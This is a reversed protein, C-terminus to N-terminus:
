RLRRTPRLGSRRQGRRRRREFIIMSAGDNEGLRVWHGSVFGPMQSLRPIACAASGVNQGRDSGSRREAVVHDPGTVSSRMPSSSCRRRRSSSITAWRILSVAVQVVVAVADLLQHAFVPLQQRGHLAARLASLFQPRGYIPSATRPQRSEHHGGRMAYSAHHARRVVGHRVCRGLNSPRVEHLLGSPRARSLVGSRRSPPIRGGISSSSSTHSARSSSIVSVNLFISGRGYRSRSRLSRACPSSTLSLCWPCRCTPSVTRASSSATRVCDATRLTSDTAPQRARSM